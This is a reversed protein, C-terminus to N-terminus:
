ETITILRISAWLSGKSKFKIKKSTSRLFPFSQSLQKRFNGSKEFCKKLSAQFSAANLKLTFFAQRQLTTAATTTTTTTQFQFFPFM